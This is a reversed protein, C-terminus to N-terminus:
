FMITASTIPLAKRELDEGKEIKREDEKDQKNDKFTQMELIPANIGTAVKPSEDESLTHSSIVLLTVFTFILGTTLEFTSSGASQINPNCTLDPNSTLASWQLYLTYTLVLSSTFISADDRTKLLVLAYMTFGAVCTFIQQWITFTCSSYQSFQLIIWVINCGALVVTLIILIIGSCSAAGGGEANVNNILKENLVYAVVLMLIAQFVLFSFSIWEAFVLYGFFFSNDIWLFSIMLGIVILIKFGWCGENFEAAMENRLLCILFVLLHLLALALSMRVLLSPGFCEAAGGSAEPCSLGLWFNSFIGTFVSMSLFTFVVFM